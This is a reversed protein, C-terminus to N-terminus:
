MTLAMPGGNLNLSFLVFFFSPPQKYESRSKYLGRTKQNEYLDRVKEARHEVPQPTSLM